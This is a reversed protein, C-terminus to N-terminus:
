GKQKGRNWSKVSLLPPQKVQGTKVDLMGQKILDGIRVYGKGNVWRTQDEFKTGQAAYQQAVATKSYDTNKLGGINQFQQQQVPQQPQWQPMSPTFMTGNPNMPLGTTAATDTPNIPRPAGNPTGNLRNLFDWDAQTMPRSPAPPTPQPLTWGTQQLTKANPAMWSPLPQGLQPNWNPDNQWGQPRNWYEPDVPTLAAGGKMKRQDRNWDTWYSAVTSVEKWWQRQRKKAEEDLWFFQKGPM